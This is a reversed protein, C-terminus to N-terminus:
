QITQWSPMLYRSLFAMNQRGSFYKKVEKGHILAETITLFGVIAVSYMNWIQMTPSRNKLWKFFSSTSVFSFHLCQCTDKFRFQSWELEGFFYWFYLRFFTECVPFKPMHLWVCSKLTPLGWPLSCSKTMSLGCWLVGCSSQWLSRLAWNKEISLAAARHDTQCVGDRM